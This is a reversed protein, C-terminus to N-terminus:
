TVRLRIPPMQRAAAIVPMVMVALADSGFASFCLAPFAFASFGLAAFVAGAYVLLSVWPRIADPMFWVRDLLAILTFAVLAIVLGCLIARTQLLQRRRLRFRELAEHTAPRLALNM